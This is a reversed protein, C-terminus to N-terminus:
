HLTISYQHMRAENSKLTLIGPKEHLIGSSNLHDAWGWWPEICFFPAGIKTWFGIATWDKCQMSMLKGKKEHVLYVEEFPVNKIVLADKEFYSDQLQFSNTLIIPKAENSYYNGEILHQMTQFNGGFDLFYESLKGNLHFGPHGGINYFLYEENHNKVESSIILTHGVLEFRQTLEFYFPYQKLTFENASLRFTVKHTECNEVEFNCDRAFGHQKMVYNEGEHKYSDNILRGVIPFLLPAYRNWYFENKKWILNEGNIKKLSQLEAGLEHISAEIFDNKISIM